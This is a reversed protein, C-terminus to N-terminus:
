LHRRLAALARPLATDGVIETQVQSPIIWELNEHLANISECQASNVPAYYVHHRVSAGNSADLDDFSILPQPATNHLSVREALIEALNHAPIGEVRAQLSEPFTLTMGQPSAVSNKGLLVRDGACILVHALELQPALNWTDFERLYQFALEDAKPLTGADNVDIWHANHQFAVVKEHRLALKAFLEPVDIRESQPLFDVATKTLVYTGSSLNIKVVPKERYEEICGNNVVVEGFPIQFNEVHTAITLAAHQQLHHCVFQRLDLTSLNDVNLVLITDSDSTIARAAGITGLPQTEEFCRLSASRLEALRKGRGQVYDIIKQEDTNVAVVLDRFGRQLLMLLNREILPVGLVRVLAKHQSRLSSRMRRSRGGAMILATCM